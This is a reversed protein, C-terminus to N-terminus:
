LIACMGFGLGWVGKIVIEEVSNFSNFTYYFFYVCISKLPEKNELERRIKMTGLSGETKPSHGLKIEWFFFGSFRALCLHFRAPMATIARLLIM